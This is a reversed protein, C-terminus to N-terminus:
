YQICESRAFVACHGDTKGYEYRGAIEVGALLCAVTEDDHERGDNDNLRPTRDFELVVLTQGLLRKTLLKTLLAIMTLKLIVTQPSRGEFNGSHTDGEIGAGALLCMFWKNCQDRGDNDNIHPTRGFETSFVVLTQDPLGKTQLDTLLPSM